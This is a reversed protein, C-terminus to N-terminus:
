ENTYTMYYVELMEKLSKETIKSNKIKVNLSEACKKTTSENAKSSDFSYDYTAYYAHTDAVTANALEEPMKDGIVLTVNYGKENVKADKEENKKWENLKTTDSDEIYYIEKGNSDAIKDGDYSVLGSIQHFNITHVLGEKDVTYEITTGELNSKKFDEPVDMTGKVTTLNKTDVTESTSTTNDDAKKDKKSTTSGSSCGCLMVLALCAPIFKKFQM